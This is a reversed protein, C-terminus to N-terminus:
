LIDDRYVWRRKKVLERRHTVLRWLDQPGVVALYQRAGAHTQFRVVGSVLGVLLRRSGDDPDPVFVGAGTQDERGALVSPITTLIGFARPEDCVQVRTEWPGNADRGAVILEEGPRPDDFCLAVSPLRIETEATYLGGGVPEIVVPEVSPGDGFWATIEARGASATRGLFVIGYDTSVGLESGKETRIELTPDSLKRTGICAGLLLCLLPLFASLRLPRSM